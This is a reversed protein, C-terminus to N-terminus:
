SRGVETQLPIRSRAHVVFGPLVVTLVKLRVELLEGMPQLASSVPGLRHPSHEYGFGVPPQSRESHRRQFVLQHLAGRDLYQVSDVFGVKQSEGISESRSAALVLRQVREINSDVAPLHVPHQVHVYSAEEIRDQM